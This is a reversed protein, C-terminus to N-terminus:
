LVHNEIDTVFTGLLDKPEISSSKYGLDKRMEIWVSALRGLVEIAKRGQSEPTCNYRQFEVFARVVEDSGVLWLKGTFQYLEHILEPEENSLRDAKSSEFLRRVTDTFGTYTEWKRENFRSEFEKQLDAKAQNAYYRSTFFATAWAVIVGGVLAIALDTSISVSRDERSLRFAQEM